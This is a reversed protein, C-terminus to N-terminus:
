PESSGNLKIFAERFCFGIASSKALCIDLKKFCIFDAFSSISNVAGTMADLKKKSL